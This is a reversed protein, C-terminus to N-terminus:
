RGKTLRNPMTLVNTSDTKSRVRSSPISRAIPLARRIMRCALTIVAPIPAASPKGSPTKRAARTVCAIDVPDAHRNRPRREARERQDRDEGADRCRDQRRPAGGPEVDDVRQVVRSTLKEGARPRM